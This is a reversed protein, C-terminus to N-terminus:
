TTVAAYKWAGSYYAYLRGNTSDFVIPVRGTVSTPTGTAAGACTAIYLFGDTASTSIAANGMILSGTAGVKLQLAGNTAIAIENSASRYLGSTADGLNLAPAGVAGNALTLVGTFTPSASMVINGTGSIGNSTPTYSWSWSSTGTGSLSICTLVLRTNQAMAQISNAGSSQVTVAGSSLNVVTYQQGLALTSTVPLVVTQTTSGTFYQQTTDSVTLTTTGAATATTTYGPVLATIVLSPITLGASTGRALLTTGSYMEVYSNKGSATSGYLNIGGGAAASVGALAVTGGCIGVVDATSNYSLLTTQQNGNSFAGM